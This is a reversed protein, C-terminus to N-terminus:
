DNPPPAQPNPPSPAPVRSPLRALFWAGYAMLGAQAALAWGAVRGSAISLGLTVLMTAYSVVKVRMPVVRHARWRQIGPGFWRHELLWREFRRSSHSFAWAALLMFPTTPVVPLVAGIVGLVFFLWGAAFYLLRRGGWRHGAHRQEQVDKRESENMAALPAKSASVDIDAPVVAM